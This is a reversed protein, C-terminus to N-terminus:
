KEERRAFFYFDSHTSTQFDGTFPYKNKIVNFCYWKPRNMTIWNTFKRHRVHEAFKEGLGDFNSSYIVVWREACDFITTMYKEFINDEVLHYIVDLSLAADAKDSNYYQMMKFEKSSDGAFLARCKVIAASSVDLGLYRPYHALSLQHGDGCGFEIISQVSEAAIFENLIKAKFKALDGYSGPGSNRGAIYREEWYSDSGEFAGVSQRPTLRLLRLV